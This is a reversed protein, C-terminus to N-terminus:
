AGYYGHEQELGRERLLDDVQRALEAREQDTYDYCRPNRTPDRMLPYRHDVPKLLFLDKIM